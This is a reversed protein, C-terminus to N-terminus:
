DATHKNLEGETLNLGTNFENGRETNSYTETDERKVTMRQTMARGATKRQRPASPSNQQPASSGSGPVSPAVRASSEM